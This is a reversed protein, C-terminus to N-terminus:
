REETMWHKPLLDKPADMGTFWSGPAIVIPNMSHSLTAGWWSFTSNAIVYASGYRMLELTEAPNLSQDPVLFYRKRYESPLMEIASLPDDSFIWIPQKSSKINLRSFAKAYYSSTLIGFHKEKVYDGLRVHVVVPFDEKAMDKLQLFNKTERRLSLSKDKPDLNKFYRYSQFYGFVLNCNSTPANIFGLEPSSFHNVRRRLSISFYLNMMATLIIRSPLFRDAPHHIFNRSIAFGGFKKSLWGDNEYGIINVRDPLSYHFLDPLGNSMRPNGFNASLEVKAEEFYLGAFMQFLQNGLGGTISIIM